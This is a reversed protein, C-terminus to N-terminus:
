VYHKANAHSTEGIPKPQAVMQIKAVDISVFAFELSLRLRLAVPRRSTFELIAPNGIERRVTNMQKEARYGSESNERALM